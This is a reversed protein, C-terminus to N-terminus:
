YVVGEYPVINPNDSRWGGAHGPFRAQKSALFSRLSSLTRQLQREIITYRKSNAESALVELTAILVVAKRVMSSYQPLVEYVITVPPTGAPTPSFDPTVTAVLTTNDYATIIREQVYGNDDSLVRVMSGVYVNARTDLTGDDPSTDLTITSATAAQAEGKHLYAEGNPIFLLNLTETSNRDRTFHLTNGRITFGQGSFDLDNGPWEEWEPLGTSSNMKAVRYLQGCQPPLLYDQVGDELTIDVGVLIPHDTNVNITRHLDVFADQIMRVLDSDTYKPETSPEDTFQRIMTVCDSLFGSGSLASSGVVAPAILTDIADRIEKLSDTGTSFGSGEMAVVGEGLKELSDTAASYTGVGSPESAVKSMMARLHGLLTNPLSSGFGTSVKLVEDLVSSDAVGYIEVLDGDVPTFDLDNNLTCTNTSATYDTILRVCPRNDDSVDKVIILHNNYDDDGDTGPVDDLVISGVASDDTATTSILLTTGIEDLTNYRSGQIGAVRNDADVTPLGSAGGAAANPIWQHANRLAEGTTDADPSGPTSQGMNVNVGNSTTYAAVQRTPVDTDTDVAEVNVNLHSATVTLDGQANGFQFERAQQAPTANSNSAYAIYVNGVTFGSVTTLAYTWLGTDTTSNNGQRHTMTQNETTLATAKFTNDDWDYSHLTGDDQLKYLKLNTTGTTVIAGANDVLLVRFVIQGSTQRVDIGQTAM